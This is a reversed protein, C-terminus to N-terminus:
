AARFGEGRRGVLGAGPIEVRGADTTARGIVAAGPHRAGLMAVAADAQGAPVVCCFGCGMNFVEWLEPPDGDM